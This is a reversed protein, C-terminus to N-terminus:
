VVKKRRFGLSWNRRKKRYVGGSNGVCEMSEGGGGV